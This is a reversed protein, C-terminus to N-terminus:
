KAIKFADTLKQNYKSSKGFYSNYDSFNIEGKRM